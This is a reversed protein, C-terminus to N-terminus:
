EVGGAQILAEIHRAMEDSEALRQDALRLAAEAAQRRQLAIEGANRFMPRCRTFLDIADLTWQMHFAMNGRTYLDQAANFQLEAATNARLQLARQREATAATRLYLILASEAGARAGIYDGADWKDIADMGIRDAESLADPALQEAMQEIEERVLFARLMYQLTTYMSLANEADIRAGLYDEDDWKDFAALGVDDARLIAGPYLEEVQEAIEERVRYAQLGAVLAMYMDLAEGATNRAAHLNGAQYQDDARVVMNDAQLLYDPVLAQAGLNVAAERAQTLEDAMNQYFQAYTRELMNEFAEAARLFRTTSEQTEAATTTRRQQEAQTFLSSAANWDSPFFENGRFERVLDRAAEARAVAENLANLSAQDPPQAPPQAPPQVPRGDAPALPPVAEQAPPAGPCSVFIFLIFLGMLTLLIRSNKM